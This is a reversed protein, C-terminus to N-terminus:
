VLWASCAYLTGGLQHPWGFKLQFVPKLLGPGPGTARSGLRALRMMPNISKLSHIWVQNQSVAALTQQSCPNRLGSTPITAVDIPSSISELKWCAFQEVIRQFGPWSNIFLTDRYM